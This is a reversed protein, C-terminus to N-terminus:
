FFFFLLSPRKHAPLDPLDLLSTVPGSVRGLGWGSLGSGGPQENGRREGGGSETEPKEEQEPGKGAKEGHSERHCRAVLASTRTAETVSDCSAVVGSPMKLCMGARQQCVGRLFPVGSNYLARLALGGRGPTYNFSLGKFCGCKMGGQSGRSFHIVSTLFKQPRLLFFSEEMVHTQMRAVGESRGEAWDSFHAATGHLGSLRRSGSCVSVWVAWGFTAPLRPFRGGGGGAASVAGRLLAELGDKETVESKKCSM